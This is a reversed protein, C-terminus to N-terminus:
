TNVKVRSKDARDTHTPFTLMTSVRKRDVSAIHLPFM